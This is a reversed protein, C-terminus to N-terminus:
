IRLRTFLLVYAASLLGHVIRGAFHRACRIKAGSVAYATQAHVSLGGFGLLFAALALHVPAAPAGRLAAIGSGLELLGSLLATGWRLEVGLQAALTATIASFAGSCQLLRTLMSFFVVYACLHLATDAAASVCAPFSTSEPRFYAAATGNPRAKGGRGFLLALTLAALVHALYLQVGCCVSGFVASGAVGIIFGPGTNNCWPLLRAGEEPTVAGREVAEAVARAGVPYGSCLGLLFPAAGAAPLGLRTLLPLARKALADPLGAASLLSSLVLFPFLSPLIVGACVSLGCRAGEAAEEPMWLMLGLLALPFLAAASSVIQKRM